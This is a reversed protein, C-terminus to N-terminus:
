YSGTILSLTPALFFIKNKFFFNFKLFIIKILFKFFFILFFYFVIIYFLILINPHIYVLGDILQENINNNYNVLFSNYLFVNNFVLM